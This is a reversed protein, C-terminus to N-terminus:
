AAMSLYGRLYVLLPVIRDMAQIIDLAKLAVPGVFVEPGDRLHALTRDAMHILEALHGRILGAPLTMRGVLKRDM